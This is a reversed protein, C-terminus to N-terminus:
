STTRSTSQPRMLSTLNDCGQIAGGDCAQRYLSLARALDQTIGEGTGYMFGLDDCGGM